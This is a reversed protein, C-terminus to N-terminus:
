QGPGYTAFSCERNITWAGGIDWAAMVGLAKGAYPLDGTLFGVVPGLNVAVTAGVLTDSATAHLYECALFAPYSRSYSISSEINPPPSKPAQPLFPGRSSPRSTDGYALVWQTQQLRASPGSDTLADLDPLGLEIWGQFGGVMAGNPALYYWGDPGPEIKYPKGNGPAKITQQCGGPPCVLSSVSGGQSFGGGSLMDGLAFDIEVGDLCYSEPEAATASSGPDYPGFEADADANVSQGPRHLSATDCAALGFPDIAMLPNGGVYAYRNWTQPNNPDVAALGAPDPTWWRGQVASLERMLFDYQGGTIDQRQGTFDRNDAGTQAYTEGYPAYANATYVSHDSRTALRVSGLNDPHTYYQFGSSDYVAEGGGPLPVEAHALTQGQM